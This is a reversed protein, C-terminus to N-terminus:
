IRVTIGRLKLGENDRTIETHENEESTNLVDVNGQDIFNFERDWIPRNGKIIEGNSRAAFLNGGDAFIHTTSITTPQSYSMGFYAFRADFLNQFTIHEHGYRMFKLSENDLSAFTTFVLDFLYGDTQVAKHAIFGPSISNIRLAGPQQFNTIPVSHLVGTKGDIDIRLRGQSRIYTILVHRLGPLYPESNAIDTVGTGGDSLYVRISNQTKSYGVENVSFSANTLNTKTGDSSTSSDSKAVIPAVMPEQERSIFHRTFGVTGPSFWWFAITFNENYTYTPSVIYSKSEEFLIGRRVINANKLLDFKTFQKFSASGISPLFDNQAVDDTLIQDFRWVGLVTSPFSRVPVPLIRITKEPPDPLHDREHPM